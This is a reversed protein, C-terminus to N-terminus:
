NEIVNLSDYQLKLYDDTMGAIYDLVIRENTNKNKYEDSLNNLYSQYIISEFNKEKLDKLYKEYMTNLMTKYCNKMEKTNAKNYINEYNFKKLKVIAEHVHNSM